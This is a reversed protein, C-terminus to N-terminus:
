KDNEIEGKSIEQTMRVDFFLFQATFSSSFYFYFDQSCFSRNFFFYNIAMKLPKMFYGTLFFSNWSKETKEKRMSQQIVAKERKKYFRKCIKFFQYSKM